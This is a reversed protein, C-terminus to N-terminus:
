VWDAMKELMTEPLSALSPRIRDVTLPGSRSVPPWNPTSDETSASTRHVVVPMTISTIAARRPFITGGAQFRGRQSLGPSV